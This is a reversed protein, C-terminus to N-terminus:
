DICCLSPFTLFIQVVATSLLLIFCIQRVSLHGNATFQNRSTNKTHCSPYPSSQSKFFIYNEMFALATYPSAAFIFVTPVIVCKVHSPSLSTFIPSVFSICLIRFLYKSIQYQHSLIHSINCLPVPGDLNCELSSM